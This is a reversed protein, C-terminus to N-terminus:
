MVCSIFTSNVKLDLHIVNQSHMYEVGQLIEHMFKICRSENLNFSEDIIREFLEGGTIRISGYDIFLTKRTDQELCNYRVTVDYAAHSKSVYEEDIQYADYLQILRPHRLKNMVAIENLVSNM